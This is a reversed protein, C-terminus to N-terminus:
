KETRIILFLVGFPTSKENTSGFRQRNQLRPPVKRIFGVGATLQLLSDLLGVEPLQRKTLHNYFIGKTLEPQNPLINQLSRPISLSM